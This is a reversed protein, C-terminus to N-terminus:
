NYLFVSYFSHAVPFGGPKRVQSATIAITALFKPAVRAEVSIEKFAYLFLRLKSGCLGASAKLNMSSKSIAVTVVSVHCYKATKM